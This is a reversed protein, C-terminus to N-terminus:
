SRRRRRLVMGLAGLGLLSMTAPEPVYDLQIDDFDVKCGGTSKWFLQVVIDQGSATATYTPCSIATWSGGVTLTEYQVVKTGGVWLQLECDDGDWQPVRADASLDYEYGDVSQALVGSTLKTWKTNDTSANIYARVFQVDSEDWVGIHADQGGSTGLATTTSTWNTVNTGGPFTKNNAGTALAPADFSYNPVTIAVAQAMGAILGLVAVFATVGLVRKRGTM